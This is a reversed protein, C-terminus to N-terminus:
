NKVLKRTIQEKATSITVIYIGPKLGQQDYFEFNNLGSNGKIKERHFLQGNISTITLEAKAAEEMMFQMRFNDTFPNPGISEIKLKADTAKKEMRVRVIESYSFKGDFDTQKLRYYILNGVPTEDYAKYTITVRSNGAGPKTLLVEFNRGDTSREITFFDNDKEASTAWMLEVKNGSPKARFYLLEIPLANVNSSGIGYHGLVNMDNRNVVPSVSSGTATIHTGNFTWPSGSNVRRLLRLPTYDNVGTIGNATVNVNYAGGAFSNGATLSWYFDSVTSVTQSNETLPLGNLGVTAKVFNATITGPTPAATFSYNIGNYNELTGVPFLINATTAAAIWRRFNGVVHGSTRSLTGLISSSTGLSLTNVNTIVNGSTFTLINSPNTSATLTINAPNNFTLNRVTVPLGDGTVQASIGNYTYDAGTNYTRTGAVQINGSAGSATIGTPSGIMLGAGSNVTFAGSGNVIQQDLRLIAGASVNFDILGTVNNMSTYLQETTGVFNIRGRSQASTETILATSSLLMNGKINLVGLGKNSNNADCQSLDLIGGSIAANGNITLTTSTSGYSNGGSKSFAFQGGSQNYNGTINIAASGNMCGYLHGDTIIMNGTITLTSNNGQNDLMLANSGTSKLEFNELITTLTAALNVQGSQGLCNWIFNRFSQNINTPPTLTVGTVEITSGASWTASPVIGGNMAHEFVGGGDITLSSLTSTPFTGGQRIIRGGSAITQRGSSGVTVTGSSAVKEIGNITSTASAALAFTANVELTGDVRIDTGAGNLINLTGGTNVLMAGTSLIELQDVTISSSVVVTDGASITIINNSSTPLSSAAVWSSGNYSQWIGLTSWNGDGNTRYDGSVAGLSETSRTLNITVFVSGAILLVAFAAALYVQRITLRTSTSQLQKMGKKLSDM